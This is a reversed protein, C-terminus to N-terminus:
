NEITKIPEGKLRALLDAMKDFRREAMATSDVKVALTTTRLAADKVISLLKPIVVGDDDTTKTCLVRYTIELSKRRNRNFLEAETLESDPKDPVAPIQAVERVLTKYGKQVIKDDTKPPPMEAQVHEIAKRKVKQPGGMFERLFGPREAEIARMRAWYNRTGDKLAQKHEETITAGERVGHRVCYISDPRAYWTCRTGARAGRKFVTACQRSKIFKKTGTAKKYKTPDIEVRQKVGHEDRTWKYTKTPGTM